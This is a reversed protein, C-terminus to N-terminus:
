GFLLDSLFAFGIGSITFGAFRLLMFSKRPQEIIRKGLYFAIASIGLQISCFGLIYAGLTTTEAGVISEGYAYGHFVGAFAGLITLLVLSAQNKQALFIGMVLVSTSIMLEAAPLDINQLHIGTGIATAGVFAAPITLGSKNSLAALLGIAIVFVLHDIGIVPHGLGSLFGAGFTSPVSGGTPHHALVPAVNLLLNIGLLTSLISGSAIAKNKNM